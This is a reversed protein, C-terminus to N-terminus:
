KTLVCDAGAQRMVDHVLPRTDSTVVIIPVTCTATDNRLCACLQDGAMGPLRIEMVIIDPPHSIAVALAERGDTTETVAYAQSVFVAKYLARTEVDPEVILALHRPM